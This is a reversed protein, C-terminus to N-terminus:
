IYGKSGKQSIIIAPVGLVVSCDSFSQNVLSCAGILVENGITIHGSVVSNAGIYVKDGIVPTGRREGRGSVGITVGQSINCNDGIVAKSNIIIGGFHGIYFSHGIKASAPISIGTTIEVVKQWILFLMLFLFRFPQWKINCYCFHALRYQFVAWFGQTFFVIGLFHGAYKQHKRYDSHILQLLNM